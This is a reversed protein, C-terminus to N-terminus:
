ILIIKYYLEKCQKYISYYLNNFIAYYIYIILKIRIIMDNPRLDCYFAPNKHEINVMKGRFPFPM